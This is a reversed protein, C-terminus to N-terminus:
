RTGTRLISTEGAKVTLTYVEKDLQFGKPAKIEKVYYTGARLEVTDTNGAESGWIGKLPNYKQFAILVGGLPAYKFVQTLAM